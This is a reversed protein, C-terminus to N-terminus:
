LLILFCASLALYIYDGAPIGAPQNENLMKLRVLVLKCKYVATNNFILAIVSNAYFDM